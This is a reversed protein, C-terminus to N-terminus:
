GAPKALVWTTMARLNQVNTTKIPDLSEAGLRAASEVLFAEDVLFRESGDPLRHVRGSIRTVRDAITISSALRAFLVGGPALVRWLEDLMESFEREDTAFHLVANCVVAQFFADAHPLDTLDAREFNSPSLEPAVRAALARVREIASPDADVGHVDAGRRMLYEANRGSGCGADLVRMAPTIRARQIQDFLYIDIQGFQAIPEGRDAGSPDGTM